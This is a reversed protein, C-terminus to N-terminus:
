SPAAFYERGVVKKDNFSYLFVSVENFSRFLLCSLSCLSSGHDLGPVTMAVHARLRLWGYVRLEVVAVPAGLRLLGCGRLEVVAVSAGLRLWGCIM